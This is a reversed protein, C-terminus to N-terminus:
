LHGGYDIDKTDEAVKGLPEPEFEYVEGKTEKKEFTGSGIGFFREFFAVLKEILTQKKEERNGGGFRSSAPMIKDLDTGTTKIEGNRFCDELYKRTEDERLNEESIIKWSFYPHGGTGLPKDVSQVLVETIEM